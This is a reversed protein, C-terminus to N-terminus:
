YMPLHEKKNVTKAKRQGRPRKRFLSLLGCRHLKHRQMLEDFKDIHVLYLPLLECNRPKTCVESSANQSFITAKESFWKRHFIRLNGSLHKAKLIQGPKRGLPHPDTVVPVHYWNCCSSCLALAQITNVECCPHTHEVKFEGFQLWKM